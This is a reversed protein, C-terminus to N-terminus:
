PELYGFHGEEGTLVRRVGSNRQVLGNRHHVTAAIQRTIVAIHMFAGILAPASTEQRDRVLHVGAHGLADGLMRGRCRSGGHLHHQLASFRQGGAARARAVPSCYASRGVVMKSRQSAWPQGTAVPRELRDNATVAEGSASPRADAAKATM